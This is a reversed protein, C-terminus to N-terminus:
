VALFNCPKVKRVAFEHLAAFQDEFHAAFRIYIASQILFILRIRHALSKQFYIQCLYDSVSEKRIPIEHGSARCPLFYIRLLNPTFKQRNYVILGKIM